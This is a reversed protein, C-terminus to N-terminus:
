PAVSSLVHILGKILVSASIVLSKQLIDCLKALCIPAAIEVQTDSLLMVALARQQGHDLFLTNPLEMM